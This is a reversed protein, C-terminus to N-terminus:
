ETVGINYTCVRGSPKFIMFKQSAKSNRRLSVAFDDTGCLSSNVIVEIGNNDFELASHYHGMFVYDPIEHLFTSLQNVAKATAKDRHGHVGICVKGAVEARIIDAETNDMKHITPYKDDITLDLIVRIFNSFTENPLSEKLNPSVREHNGTCTYVYVDFHKSFEILMDALLKGARMVQCCVDETNNIRTTVHIIGNILDGLAFVHLKKIGNMEGYLITDNVVRKIRSLLEADNFINWSSESKQGIHWDSLLLVGETDSERNLIADADEESFDLPAIGLTACHKKLEDVIHEARSWNRLHNRLMRKQDQAQIKLREAKFEKDELADWCKTPNEQLEAREEIFDKQNLVVKSLLLEGEEKTKEIENDTMGRHLYRNVQKWTLDYSGDATHILLRETWEKYSEGNKQNYNQNM